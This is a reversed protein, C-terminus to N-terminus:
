SAWDGVSAGLKSPDLFMESDGFLLDEENDEPVPVEVPDLEMPDEHEQEM